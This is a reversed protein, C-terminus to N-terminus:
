IHILSLPSGEVALIYNGNFKKMVDELAQHDQEGAAVMLTDDYALSIMSLIVDKTLPHYSRIFSETCCTCELGHLWIVPTRPKTEMAHAIDAAGNAGLGLSAATLSCFKLFSRRSVGQRRM